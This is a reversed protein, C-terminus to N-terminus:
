VFDFGIYQRLLALGMTPSVRRAAPFAERWNGPPPVEYDQVAKRTARVTAPSSKQESM